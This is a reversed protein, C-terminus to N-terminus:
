TRIPGQELLLDKDISNFMIDVGRGPIEFVRSSENGYIQEEHHLCTRSKKLNSFPWPDGVCISGKSNLATFSLAILQLNVFPM